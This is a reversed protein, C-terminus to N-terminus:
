EGIAATIRNAVAEATPRQAAPALCDRVLDALSAELTPSIEPKTSVIRRLALLGDSAPLDGFVGAGAAVRHLMIGLSWVDNHPAPPEGHLLDPDTYEVSTISGMGTLTVGPTFVQSLGLDSLKAGDSTLLVNSPKVDRHVIGAAHLAAVARSADVVARLAAPREIGYAPHELTGAPVFEMSYYFIGDHQGADFLTVLYPSRVAAFAKMERTARRFTDATSEGSLVKVAVYEVDIPLRLPPRALFFQGHNGSGLWRVFEYDAVGQM